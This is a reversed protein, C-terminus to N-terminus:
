FGTKAAILKAIERPFHAHELQHIRAALTEPTDHIEVPCSAQFIIQGHDYVEDVYHITIGSEKDGNIIVAQHVYNGYMGKGGWKPLLAPHINIIGSPYAEILTKPVKWLFGALVVLRIQKEQLEPLYADGNFFRDKEILLAPIGEKKAIGLVGAGPKNCVILAVRIHAHGRFYNIIQQANSGAGSAFISINYTEGQKSRVALQKSGVASKRGIGVRAGLKGIYGSFFRFQGTLLSVILVSVPWLVTVILVYLVIWAAGRELGTADLLKRGAWGTLSGGIAFTLIILLVRLASVKWKEQLRKFMTACFDPFFFWRGNGKECKISFISTNVM